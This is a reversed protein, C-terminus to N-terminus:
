LLDSTASLQTKISSSQPSLRQYLMTLLYTGTLVVVASTAGGVVFEATPQLVSSLLGILGIGVLGLATSLTTVAVAVPRASVRTHSAKVARAVTRGDLVVAVFVFPLYVLVVLGPVVFLAFGLAMVPIGAIVVATARGFRRLTENSSVPTRKSNGTGAISRVFLALSCVALIAAGIFLLGAGIPSLPVTVAYEFHLSPPIASQVGAFLSNLAVNLLAVLVVFSLAPIAPHWYQATPGHVRTSDVRPVM